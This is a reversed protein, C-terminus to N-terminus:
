LEKGVAGRNGNIREIRAGRMTKFRPQAPNQRYGRSDRTNGAGGIASESFLVGHVEGSVSFGRRASSFRNAPTTSFRGDSGSEMNEFTVKRGDSFPHSSVADPPSIPRLDLMAASVLPSPNSLTGTLRSARQSLSPRASCTENWSVSWFQIWTRQPPLSVRIGPRTPSGGVSESGGASGSQVTGDSINAVRSRDPEYAKGAATSAETAVAPACISPRLCCRASRRTRDSAGPRSWRRAPPISVSGSGAALLGESESHLRNGLQGQQRPATVGAHAEEFPLVVEEELESVPQQHAGLEGVPQGLVLVHDRAVTRDPNAGAPLPQQAGDLGRERERGPVEVPGLEIDALLGNPDVDRRHPSLRDRLDLDQLRRARRQGKVQVEHMQTIERLAEVALRDASSNLVGSVANMRRGTSSSSLMSCKQTPIGSTQDTRSWEGTRQLHVAGYESRRVRIRSPVDLDELTELGHPHPGRHVDAGRALGPQVVEEPLTISLLM